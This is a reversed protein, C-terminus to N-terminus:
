EVVLKSIKTGLSSRYEVLYYGAQIGQISITKSGKEVAVKMVELGNLNKISLLGAEPVNAQIQDKAPNPMLEFSNELNSNDAADTVVDSAVNIVLRSGPCNGMRDDFTVNYYIGGKPNQDENGATSTGIQKIYEGSFNDKM